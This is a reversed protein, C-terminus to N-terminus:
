PSKQITIPLVPLKSLAKTSPKDGVAVPEAYLVCQQLVPCITLCSAGDSPRVNDVLVCGDSFLTASIGVAMLYFTTFALLSQSPLHSSRPGHRCVLTETPTDTCPFNHHTHSIPTPSTPPKPPANELWPYFQFHSVCFQAPLSVIAQSRAHTISFQVAFAEVQLSKFPGFSSSFPLVPLFPTTGRSVSPHVPPPPPSVSPYIERCRQCNHWSGPNELNPAM